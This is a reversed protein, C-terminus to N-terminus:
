EVKLQCRNFVIAVIALRVYRRFFLFEIKFFTAFILLYKSVWSEFILNLYEASILYKIRETVVTTKGMGAGAIILLPGGKYTVAKLQERNLKKLSGRRTM